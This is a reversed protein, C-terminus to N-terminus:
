RVLDREVYNMRQGSPNAVDHPSSGLSTRVSPKMGGSQKIQPLLARTNRNVPVTWHHAAMVQGNDLATIRAAVYVVRDAILYSGSLVCARVPSFEEQTRRAEAERAEPSSPLPDHEVPKPVVTPPIKAPGDTVMFNRLALRAALQESVLRGFPSPEAPDVRNIFRDYYIPSRGNMAPVFLGMMDDAADYSIDILRTSDEAVIDAKSPRTGLVDDKANVMTRKISNYYSTTSSGGGCGALAASALLVLALLRATRRHSSTSM